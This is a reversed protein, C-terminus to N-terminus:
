CDDGGDRAPRVAFLTGDRATAMEEVGVVAAIEDPGHVDYRSTARGDDLDFWVLVVPADACRVDRAFRELEGTSTAGRYFTRRPAHLLPQVGTAAWLGWPENSTLVAGSREAEIRAQEAADSEEWTRQGYYVGTRADDRAQRVAVAAHGVVFVAATAVLTWGLARGRDLGRVLGVLEDAAVAGLVVLPVYVPSMLRSNIPDIATALQAAALYGVYVFTFTVLPGTGAEFVARSAASRAARRHASVLLACGCLGVLLVLPGGASFVPVEGVPQFWGVVTEGINRAVQEIDDPSERRPGLWTGDAVRNRVM